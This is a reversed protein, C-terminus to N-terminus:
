DEGEILPRYSLLHIKKPRINGEFDVDVDVVIDAVVVDHMALAEADVNPYLDMPLRKPYKANELIQAGWGTKQRDKDTARIDIKADIEPINNTEQIGAIESDSPFEHIEPAPIRNMKGIEILSGKDSRAPRLVDAVKKILAKRKTLPIADHLAKEVVDPAVNSVDGIMNITTNFSDNILPQGESNDSGKHVKDFAYRAIFYIVALTTLTVAPEWFEPIDMGILSEVNNVVVDQVDEQYAGFLLIMYEFFKSDTKITEIYIQSSDLAISPQTKEIVELSTKIIDRQAQMSAIVDDLTLKDSSYKFTYPVSNAM